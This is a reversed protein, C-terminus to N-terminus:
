GNDIGIQPHNSVWEGTFQFIYLKRMLQIHNYQEISEAATMTAVARQCSTEYESTRQKKHNGM